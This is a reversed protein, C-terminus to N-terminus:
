LDDTPVLKIKILEIDKKCNSYLRTMYNYAELLQEINRAGTIITIGSRFSTITISRCENLQYGNAKRNKCPTSCKCLGDKDNHINFFYKFVVGPYHSPDYIVLCKRNLLLNRLKERNVDYGAKITSNMNETRYNFVRTVPSKAIKCLKFINKICLIGRKYNDVGSLQLSGNNFIKVNIKKNNIQIVVSCQGEFGGIKANLVTANANIQIPKNKIIFKFLNMFNIGPTELKACSTTTSIKLDNPINLNLSEIEHSCKFYNTISM